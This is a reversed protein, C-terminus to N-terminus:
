VHRKRDQGMDASIMLFLLLLFMIDVMPILNPSLDANIEIQKPM